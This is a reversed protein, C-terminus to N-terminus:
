DLNQYVADVSFVGTERHILSRLGAKAAAFRGLEYWPWTKVYPELVPNFNRRKFESFGPFFSIRDFINGPFTAVTTHFEALIDASAFGLAAARVNANGTPHSLLVKM